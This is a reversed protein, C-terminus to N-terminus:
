PLNFFIMPNDHSDRLPLGLAMSRKVDRLRDYIEPARARSATFYPTGRENLRRLVVAGETFPM